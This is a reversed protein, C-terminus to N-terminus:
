AVPIPLVGLFAVLSVLAAALVASFNRAHM